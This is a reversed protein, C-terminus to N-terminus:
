AGAKTGQNVLCAPRPAQCGRERKSDGTQAGDKAKMVSMRLGESEPESIDGKGETMNDVTNFLVTRELMCKCYM